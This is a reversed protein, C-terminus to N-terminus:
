MHSLNAVALAGFILVVVAFTTFFAASGTALPTMRRRNYAKVLLLGVIVQGILVFIGVMMGLLVLMGQDSFCLGVCGSNPEDSAFLVLLAYGALEVGIWGLFVRYGNM